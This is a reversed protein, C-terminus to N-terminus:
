DQLVGSHTFLYLYCLYSMICEVFLQLYRDILRVSILWLLVNNRFEIINKHMSLNKLFIKYHHKVMNIGRVDHSYLLRIDNLALIISNLAVKLLIETIDHRPLFHFFVLKCMICWTPVCTIDPNVFSLKFLIFM